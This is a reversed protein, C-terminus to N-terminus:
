SSRENKETTLVFFNALCIELIQNHVGKQNVPIIHFSISQTPLFSFFSFLRSFVINIKEFNVKSFAEGNFFHFFEEEGEIWENLWTLKQLNLCLM